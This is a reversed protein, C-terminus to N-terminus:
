VEEYELVERIELSVRIAEPTEYNLEVTEKDFRCLLLMGFSNIDEKKIDKGSITSLTLTTKDDETLFSSVKATWLFDDLTLIYIREENFQISVPEIEIVSASSIFDEQLTFLDPFVPLWFRELMGKRSKWFTLFSSEEAKSSLLIECQFTQPKRDSIEYFDTPGGDFEIIKLSSLFSYKPSTTFNPFIRLLPVSGLGNLVDSM